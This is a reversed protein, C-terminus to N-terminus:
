SQVVIGFFLWGGIEKSKKCYSLYTVNDLLLLLAFNERSSKLISKAKLSINM